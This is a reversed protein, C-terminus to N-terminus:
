NWVLYVCHSFARQAKVLSCVGYLFPVEGSPSFSLKAKCQLALETLNRLTRIPSLAFTLDSGISGSIFSISLKQTSHKQSHPLAHVFNYDLKRLTYKTLIFYVSNEYYSLSCTTVTILVAM